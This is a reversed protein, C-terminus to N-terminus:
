RGIILANPQDELVKSFRALSKAATRLERVTATLEVYIESDPSVGALVGEANEAAATLAAMMKPLDATATEVQEAVASLSDLSGALQGPLSTIEESNVLNGANRLLDTAATILNDLPLASLNSILTEVDATIAEVSSTTTPLSYYPLTSTDITEAPEDERYVLKLLLSGTLLNGSALQVRLGKDVFTQLLEDMGTKDIDTIGLRRPQLQLAANVRTRQGDVSPPLIDIAIVKGVRIGNFEIPSGVSLGKISGDLLVQYRFQDDGVTDFLSERAESRSGYLPFEINDRLLPEGQSGQEDTEFAIGGTFLAAVSEVRVSAGDSNVTAEVGSVGFFRTEAYIFRNFPADVFIEFQVKQGDAALRRREVRGVEIQRFFVPSGVYIYGAEEADLTIRTGPTGRETSPPELLAYFETERTGPSDDWDVEIHAGSLLTSLGSIETTNIRANVVWFQTESDIYAAVEPNMRVQVVVAQLDESLGVSEVLGVAVDNSLVRTEGATVGSASDFIITILPGRSAYAQWLIWAAFLLAAMPLLWVLSVRSPASKTTEINPRTPQESTM